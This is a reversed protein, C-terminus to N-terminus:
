GGSELAALLEDVAPVDEDWHQQSEGDHVLHLRPPASGVFELFVLPDPVRKTPFMPFTMDRFQQIEDTSGLMLGVLTPLEPLLTLENLPEVWSMCHECTASLMAVLHQGEGLNFTQGDQKFAFRAFPGSSGSAPEPAMASETESEEAQGASLTLGGVGLFAVLVAATQVVTPVRLVNGNAGTLSSGGLWGVVVAGLMVVNKFISALPGMSVYKGFCGCDELDNFAWGYAILGTFVLLLAATALHTLGGLRLGVLLAAGLFTELALVFYAAMEILSADSIVGYLAIQLQFASMDMAKMAAGAIFVLGLVIELIRGAVALGKLSSQTESEVTEATM